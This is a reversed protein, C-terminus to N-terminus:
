WKVKRVGRRGRSKGGEIEGEIEGEQERQCTQKRDKTFGEERDCRTKRM